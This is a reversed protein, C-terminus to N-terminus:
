PFLSSVPCTFGPLASGGNIIDQLGISVVGSSTHVDVTKTDQWLIWVMQTGVTIFAKAKDQMFPHSQSPSAIEIALLPATTLYTDSSTPPYQVISIDPALVTKNGWLQYGVEGILRGRMGHTSCWPALVEMIFAFILGHSYQPPPMRVIVGEIMEYRYNDNPLNLLDQMTANMRIVVRDGSYVHQPQATM